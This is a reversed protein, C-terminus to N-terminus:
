QALRSVQVSKGLEVAAVVIHHFWLLGGKVTFAQEQLEDGFIRWRGSISSYHVLGRRGALAVFKGDASLASYRIPWNTALYEQPVQSGATLHRHTSVVDYVTGQYTAM